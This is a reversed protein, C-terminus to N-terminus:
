YDELMKRYFPTRHGLERALLTEVYSVLGKANIFHQTLKEGEPPKLHYISQQLQMHHKKFSEWHDKFPSDIHPDLKNFYFLKADAKHIMFDNEEEDEDDSKAVLNSNPYNKFGVIQIVKYQRYPKLWDPKKM